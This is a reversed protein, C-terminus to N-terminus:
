PAEGAARRQGAERVRAAMREAAARDATETLRMYNDATFYSRSHGLRKSVTVVEEGSELANTAYSHRLGHLVIRPLGARASLRTFHRSVVEPSVPSGDERCFVLEQTDYTEGWALREAAQAARHTRLVSVTEADLHITRAGRKTKPEGFTRVKGSQTLQRRITVTGHELDVDPWSLGCCEGRRMGTTALLHYAAGLRDSRALTLFTDVQAFTWVGREAVPEPPLEVQNAPNFPILRRKYASNLAARLTAHVRRTTAISPTRGSAGTRIAAYMKDLHDARLGRLPLAGIHPNLHVRIHGEYARKTSARIGQKSDLWQGLYDQVTIKRTDLTMGREVEDLRERLAIEADRKTKFGAKSRQRRSGDPKVGCEWRIRWTSGYKQVSGSM